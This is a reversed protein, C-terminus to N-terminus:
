FSIAIKTMIFHFTGVYYRGFYNFLNHLIQCAYSHYSFPHTYVRYSHHHFSVPQSPKSIHLPLIVTVPHMFPQVTKSTSPGFGLLLGFFVHISTTFLSM